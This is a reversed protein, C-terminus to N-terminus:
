SSNNDNGKYDEMNDKSVKPANAPESDIDEGTQTTIIINDEKNYAENIWAVNTLINSEDAKATYVVKCKLEITESDLTGNKYPNLEQAPTEETNIIDLIVKNNSSEYTCLISKIISSTSLSTTFSM